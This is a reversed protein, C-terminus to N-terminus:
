IANSSYLHFDGIGQPDYFTYRMRARFYYWVEWRGDPSLEVAETDIQDPPGQRIYVRGRDSMAGRGFVSFQEDAEVIRLMHEQEMHTPTGGGESAQQQWVTRWAQLRETSPTRELSDRAEASLVGDLWSVHRRWERDDWWPVRLNLFNRAPVLEYNEPQEATGLRLNLYLNNAGFPLDQAAWTFMTTWGPSAIVSPDISRQFERARDTVVRGVGAVLNVGNEPWEGAGPRPSMTVRVRLSDQTVGLLSRENTALLNWRYESALLPLDRVAPPKYQVSRQWQRSTEDVKVTVDFTMDRTERLQVPVVCTLQTASKTAAYDNVQAQAQGVGGGIRNSKHHAVVMVTMSTMYAEGKRRFVLAKYPLSAEVEPYEYGLSDIQTTVFVQLPSQGPGDASTHPARGPGCGALGLGLLLSGLLALRRIYRMMRPSEEPQAPHNQRHNM